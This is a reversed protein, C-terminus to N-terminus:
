MVGPPLYFHLIRFSKIISYSIDDRHNSIPTERSSEFMHKFKSYVFTPRRRFYPDTFHVGHPRSHLRKRAGRGMGREKERERERERERRGAM